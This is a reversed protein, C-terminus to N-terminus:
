CPKDHLTFAEIVVYPAKGRKKHTDIFVHLDIGRDDIIEKIKNNLAETHM